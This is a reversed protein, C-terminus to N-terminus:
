NVKVAPPYSPTPDDPPTSQPVSSPLAQTSPANGDAEAVKSELAKKVNDEIEKRNVIGFVRDVIKGNRDIYFTTPLFNVGGYLESISEKGLLVTYNLNMDKAFKSITDLGADDMAVGIVQLGDGGYREQLDVFWPMETKCPTCWTAWFNLLIAKGRFQSLKVTNGNLDKLEFDPATKGKVDGVINQGDAGNGSRNLLRGSFLMVAIVVIIIALIIANRNM